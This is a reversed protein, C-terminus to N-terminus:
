VGKIKLLKISDFGLVQGGTRKRTKFIVKPWETVDDRLVSIGVRDVIQYADSWDGFALALADNAVDPMDNLEITPSGLITAPEGIQQNPEWLYQGEDDKLKRIVAFTTRNMGYTGNRRWEDKLLYHLDIIDDFTLNGTVASELQGIKGREYVNNDESAEYTLFGRPQLIGDGLVFALNEKRMFKNNVKGSHWQEINWSSDELLKSTAKPKARLEMAQIRYEGIQANDTDTAIETEGAWMAEAEDDDYNGELADSSITQVSAVRRLPSTEFIQGVTRGTTDPQVTYGGDPDSQVSLLKLEAENLSKGGKRLFKDFAASKQEDIQKDTGMPRRKLEAQMKEVAKVIDEQKGIEKDMKALREDLVATSLGAKIDAIRQDNDKKYQDFTVNIKEIAAVADKTEM